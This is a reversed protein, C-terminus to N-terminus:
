LHYKDLVSSYDEEDISDLKKEKNLKEKGVQLILESGKNIYKVVDDYARNFQEMYEQRKVISETAAAGEVIDDAWKMAHYARAWYLYAQYYKPEYTLSQIRKETCFYSILKVAKKLIKVQKTTSLTNGQFWINLELCMRYLRQRYLFDKDKQNMFLEKICSFM